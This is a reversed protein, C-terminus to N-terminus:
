AYKILVNCSVHSIQQLFHVGERLKQQQVCVDKLMKENKWDVIEKNHACIKCIVVMQMHITM